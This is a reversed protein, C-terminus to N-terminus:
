CYGGFESIDIANELKDNKDNYVTEIHIMPKKNTCRSYFEVSGLIGRPGFGLAPYQKNNFPHDKVICQLHYVMYNMVSTETNPFIKVNQSRSCNFDKVSIYGELYGELLRNQLSTSCGKPSEPSFDFLGKAILQRWWM